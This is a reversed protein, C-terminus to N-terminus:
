GFVDARITIRRWAAALCRVQFLADDLASHANGDRFVDRIDFAALEHVTRDDRINWYSWPVASGVAEAAAQWLVSDFAAGHSWVRTKDHPGVSGFWKYFDNAVDRLPKQDKKLIAQVDGPQRSWWARTEPDVTLGAVECSHPEINRYFTDGIAGDIEFEVAGISRIVCGPRVGFTELDLMVNHM